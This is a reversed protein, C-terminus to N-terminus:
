RTLAAWTLPGVIGDVTLSNASQFAKVEALTHPGFDGDSAGPSFGKSTLDDQLTVVAAGTAGERLVPYSASSTSGSSTSAGSTSTGSGPSSAAAGAYARLDAVTGNFVDLDLGSGAGAISGSASYQWFTWDSWGKAIQPASVGWNATWLAVGPFSGINTLGNWFGASCYIIPTLGTRSKIEAIWAAIQSHMTASSEGDTVEVDLFPPLDGPEFQGVANLLLDAQAVASENSRFFQYVGRVLGNAKMGAWNQQFYADPNGTGDSVRAIAFSVGSNAVETWNITGEYKSVDLGRANQAFAPTVVAALALATYSLIREIRM